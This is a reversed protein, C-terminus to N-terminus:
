RAALGAGHPRPRARARRAGHLHPDAVQGARLGGSRGIWYAQQVDTLPFPEHRSPRTPCWSRCRRPQRPASRGDGRPPPARRRWGPWPRRRSCTRSRCTPPSPGRAGRLHDPHRAALPRRARLLRRPAGIGSIGLAREWIGAVAARGRGCPGRLTALEPRSHGRPGDGASTRPRRQRRGGGDPRAAPRRRQRAPEVWYRQREFPYTPLPVRRRRERAHFGAWDVRRRRALAPGPRGGAPDGDSRAGRPIACRPARGAPRRRRAARVLTALTRGPGVELLM